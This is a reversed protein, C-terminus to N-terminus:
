DIEAMTQALLSEFTNAELFTELSLSFDSFIFLGINLNNSM